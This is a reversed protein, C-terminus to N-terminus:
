MCCKPNGNNESSNYAPRLCALASRFSSGLCKRWATLNVSVGGPSFEGLVKSDGSGSTRRVNKSLRSAM